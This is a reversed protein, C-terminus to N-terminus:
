DGLGPLDVIRYCKGLYGYDDAAKLKAVEYLYGSDCMSRLTSDLARVAGERANKFSSIRASRIQFYKRPVIGRAHMEAPISYGKPLKGLYDKCMGVLKAQRADDDDGVDGNAIRGSFIRVDYRVLSMAWHAHPLTIVPNLCNDAVALLSAVKLVKLHARNWLQRQAEDDGSKRVAHTCEIRFTNLAHSAEKDCQVLTPTGGRSIHQRLTEAQMLLRRLVEVLDPAPTTLPTANDDPRDGAYEIVNFRSMFGDALMDATLAGYFTGPTTEALMSFSVAGESQVNKETDSYNLGIQAKNSYLSTITRRLSGMPGEHSRPSSMSRLVHGWEGQMSVFCPHAACVKMLAPASAMDGWQVYSALHKHDGVAQQMLAQVAGRAHEKGIGSRAILVVYLNLQADTYTNWSRGCVGALLGLTAAIAVEPVPLVASHFIHAVLRGANGPPQNLVAPLPALGPLASM